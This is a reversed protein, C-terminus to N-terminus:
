AMDVQDLPQTSNDSANPTQEDSQSIGAQAQQVRAAMTLTCLNVVIWWLYSVELSFFEDSSMLGHALRNRLNFGYREILVGRLDFVRDNGFVRKAEPRALLQNLSLEEQIGESDIDSTIVGNQTLVHRISNELQPVLLHAAVVFDGTMGAHLATAFILERGPPVFPNNNVLPYFDRQRPKHEANIQRRAPEVCAQAYASQYMRAQSFMEAEVAADREDVAGLLRSSKRALVKGDHGIMAEDVLSLFVHRSADQEVFAKLDAVSPLRFGHALAFLATHFPKDKVREVSENVYHTIDIQGSFSEMEDALHLELELLRRHLAEVRSSKGELRRYAEIAQQLFATAVLHSPSSGTLADDCEGIYTNAEHLRAERELEANKERHYWKAAIGWYARALSWQREAEFRAAVRVAMFAYKVPEGLGEELLLEMLRHSFYLPDEGQYRDLVGEIHAIVRSYPNAKRGLQTAIQLAREIGDYSSSWHEPDELATASALYADV